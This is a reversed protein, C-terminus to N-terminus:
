YVFFIIGQSAPKKLMQKLAGRKAPLPTAAVEDAIKLMEVIDEPVAEGGGGESDSADSLAVALMNPYGQSDKSVDSCESLADALMDSLADDPDAKLMSPYGDSDNTAERTLRRKKSSSEMSSSAATSSAGSDQCEARMKDLLAADQDSMKSICEAYRTTDSWVKRVHGFIVITRRAVWEAFM